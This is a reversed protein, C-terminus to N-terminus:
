FNLYQEITYRLDEELATGAPWQLYDISVFNVSGATLQTWRQHLAAEIFEVLTEVIGTIQKKPL